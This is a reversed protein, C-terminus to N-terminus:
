AKKRMTITIECIQGNKESYNLDQSTLEFYYLEPTELKTLIQELPKKENILSSKISVGAKEIINLKVSDGVQRQNWDEIFHYITAFDQLSIGDKRDAYTEFQSNFALIEDQKMSNKINESVNSLYTFEYALISLIIIGILVGAAILLAKSANEM